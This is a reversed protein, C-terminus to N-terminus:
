RDGVQLNPAGLIWRQHVTLSPGAEGKYVREITIRHPVGKEPMSVTNGSRILVSDDVATVVGIVVTHAGAVREKVTSQICDTAGVQSATLFVCLFLLLAIRSSRKM